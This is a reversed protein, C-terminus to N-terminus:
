RCRVHSLQHRRLRRHLRCKRRTAVDRIVATYAEINTNNLDAAAVNTINENAVPSVLVIRPASKGNYASTKLKQVLNTLRTRFADLGDPGAFSENYGFAAFIVDAQHATLHQHIDGFNDPRPMLDVEDASWALTRSTLALDPHALHLFSEFHPFSAGRDFLTNGIFVVRDYKELALPLTTAVPTANEPQPATKEYIGFAALATDQPPKPKNLKKNKADQAFAPVAFVLFLTIFFSRSM